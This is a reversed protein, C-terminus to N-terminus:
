IQQFSRYSTQVRSQDNSKYYRYILYFILGVAVLILALGIWRRITGTEEIVGNMTTDSIETRDDNIPEIQRFSVNQVPGSRPSRNTLPSVNPKVFSGNRYTGVFSDAPDSQLKYIEITEIDTPVLKYDFTDIDEVFLLGRAAGSTGDNVKKLEGGQYKWTPLSCKRYRHENRVIANKCDNRCSEKMDSIDVDICRFLFEGFTEPDFTKHPYSTIIDILIDHYDTGISARHSMLIKNYADIIIKSQANGMESLAKASEIDQDRNDYLIDLSAKLDDRISQSNNM